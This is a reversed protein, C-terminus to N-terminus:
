AGRCYVVRGGVVTLDVFDDLKGLDIERTLLFWWSSLKLPNTNFVVFDARKGETLSGIENDMFLSRASDITWHRIADDLAIKEDPGWDTNGKYNRRTTAM